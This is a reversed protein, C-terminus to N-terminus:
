VIQVEDDINERGTLASVLSIVGFAGLNSFVYILLFYVVSAYGMQSSGSVGVLIFGIQAISSFGLFRKLNNQRIAFLKKTLDLSIGFQQFRQVSRVLSWYRLLLQALLPDTKCEAVGGSARVDSLVTYPSCRLM